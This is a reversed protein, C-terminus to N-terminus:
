KNIDDYLLKNLLFIIILLFHINEKVFILFYTIFNEDM